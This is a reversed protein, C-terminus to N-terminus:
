DQPLTFSPLSDFAMKLADGWGDSITQFYPDDREVRHIEENQLSDTLYLQYDLPLGVSLNAKITSDFSVILLKIADEFSM